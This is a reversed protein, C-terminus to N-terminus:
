LFHNLTREHYLLYPLSIGPSSLLSSATSTPSPLTSRSRIYVDILREHSPCLIDSRRVFDFFGILSAFVVSRNKVFRPAIVPRAAFRLDYIGFITLIVFGVVIM